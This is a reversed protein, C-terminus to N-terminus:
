TSARVNANLTRLADLRARHTTLAERLWRLHSAALRHAHGEVSAVLEAQAERWDVTSKVGNAMVGSEALRVAAHAKAQLWAHEAEAAKDSVTAYEITLADLRDLLERIGEEVQVQTLM